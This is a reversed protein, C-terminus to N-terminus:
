ARVPAATVSEAETEGDAPPPVTVRRSSLNSGSVPQCKWRSNRRDPAPPATVQVGGAAPRQRTAARKATLAVDLELLLPKAYRTTPYGVPQLPLAPAPADSVM